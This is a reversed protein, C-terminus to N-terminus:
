RCINGSTQIDIRGIQQESGFHRGVFAQAFRKVHDWDTYEHDRSTDTSLQKRRAISKMILRLLFNYQTYQRQCIIRTAPTDLRDRQHFQHYVESGQRDPRPKTTLPWVCRFSANPKKALLERRNKVFKVVCNAYYQAIKDTQGKTACFPPVLHHHYQVTTGFLTLIKM